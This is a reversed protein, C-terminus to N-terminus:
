DRCRNQFQGCAPGCLCAKTFKLFDSDTKAKALAILVLPNCSGKNTYM